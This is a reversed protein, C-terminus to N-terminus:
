EGLLKELFFGLVEVVVHNAFNIHSFGNESYSRERYRSLIDNGLELACLDNQTDIHYRLDSATDNGSDIHSIRNESHNPDRM